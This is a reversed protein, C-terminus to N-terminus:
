CLVCAQKYEYFEEDMSVRAGFRSLSKTIKIVSVLAADSIKKILSATGRAAGIFFSGPSDDYLLGNYPMEFFDRLGDSLPHGWSQSLLFNVRQHEALNLLVSIYWFFVDDESPVSFLCSCNTYM